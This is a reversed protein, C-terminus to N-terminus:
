LATGPGESKLTDRCVNWREVGQRKHTHIHTYREYCVIKKEKKTLAREKKSSDSGPRAGKRNISSSARKAVRGMERRGEKRKTSPSIWAHVLLPATTSTPSAILVTIYIYIHTYVCIYLYIYTYLRAGERRGRPRPRYGRTCVCPPPPVVRHRM